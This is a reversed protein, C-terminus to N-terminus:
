KRESSARPIYALAHPAAQELASHAWPNSSYKVCQLIVRGRVERLRHRMLELATETTPSVTLLTKAAAEFQPPGIRRAADDSLALYDRCLQETGEGPLKELAPFVHMKVRFDTWSRPTNWKANHVPVLAPDDLWLTYRALEIAHPARLLILTRLSMAADFGHYMWDKHLSRHRVRDELAALAEDSTTGIALIQEAARARSRIRAGSRAQDAASEAVHNWDDAAAIAAILEEVPPLRLKEVPPRHSVPEVPETSVTGLPRGLAVLVGRPDEVIVGDGPKQLAEAIALPAVESRDGYLGAKYRSLKLKPSAVISAANDANCYAVHDWMDFRDLLAAIAEDLGAEKIDLHLLGSFKRHLELVEILTPVRCQGGFPGQDRFPFNQLEAWTVEPVTGYAELLRDLMDDHFCVLVGDRTRRIDIENGDGGLELTARYAELTNEQAFEQAGRHCIIQVGRRREAVRHHRQKTELPSERSAGVLWDGARAAPSSAVVFSLVITEIRLIM